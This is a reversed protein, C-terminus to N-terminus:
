LDQLEQIREVPDPRGDDHGRVVGSRDVGHTPPDDLEFVPRQYAVLHSADVSQGQLVHDGIHADARHERDTDGAQPTVQGHGESHDDGHRDAKGQESGAQQQPGLDAGNVSENEVPDLDDDVEIVPHGARLPVLQSRIQAGVGQHPRDGVLVLRVCERTEGTVEAIRRIDGAAHARVVQGRRQTEREDVWAPGALDDRIVGSSITDVPYPVLTRQECREVAEQVRERHAGEDEGRNLGKGREYQDIRHDPYGRVPSAPFGRDHPQHPGGVRRDARGEDHLTCDRAHEAPHERRHRQDGALDVKNIM